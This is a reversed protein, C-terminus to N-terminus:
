ASKEREAFSRVGGARGSVSGLGDQQMFHGWGSVPATGDRPLLAELPLTMEARAGEGPMGQVSLVGGMSCAMDRLGALGFSHPSHEGARAPDFGVGNDEVALTLVPGDIAVVVHALSARGHKVANVLLERAARYLLSRAEETMGVAIDCSIRVDMAHRIATDRALDSLAQDLSAGKLALPSLDTIAFRLMSLASRLMELPSAYEEFPKGQRALGEILLSAIAVLQVPGDHLDDAMARRERERALSLERALAQVQRGSELAELEVRRRDTVDTYLTCVHGSPLRFVYNEVWQAIREDQYRRRSLRESTGSEKVRRLADLLGMEGVGPFIDSVRHGVAAEKTISSISQAAPNLDEFLFDRGGEDPRYIVLGDAMNDFVQRYRAENERLKANTRERETCISALIASTALVVVLFSQLAQLHDVVEIPPLTVSTVHIILSVSFLSLVLGAVGVMFVRGRMGIWLLTPILIFKFDFNDRRWFLWLTQVALVTLLTAYEARRSWSLSRLSEWGYRHVSIVVLGVTSVGLSDAGWWALWSPSWSIGYSCHMVAIGLTTGLAPALVAGVVLFVILERVGIHSRCKKPALRDVLLAGIVSQLSSAGFFGLQVLINRNGSLALSMHVLGAALIFLPWRRRPTCLLVGMFLGSPPWFVSFHIPKFTIFQGMHAVLFYGLLFLTADGWAKATWLSDSLKENIRFVEDCMNNIM